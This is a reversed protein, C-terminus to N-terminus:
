TPLEKSMFLKYAEPYATKLQQLMESPTLKNWEDGYRQYNKIKHFDLIAEFPPLAKSLFAAQIDDIEKDIEEKYDLPNIQFSILRYDDANFYHIFSMDPNDGLGYYAAQLAQHYYPEPTGAKSRGTASVKDFAMKASSKIEHHILVEKDKGKMRQTLDVFGIGGRYGVARQLEVEGQLVAGAPVPIWGPNEQEGSVIGYILDYPLNTLLVIARTEVDHGRQFKGLTYSDYEKELGLIDLVSWLTPQGLKGGSILGSSTRKSKAIEHQKEFFLGVKDSFKYVVKPNARGLPARQPIKTAM